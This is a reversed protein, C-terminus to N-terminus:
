SQTIKKTFNFKSHCEIKLSMENKTANCKSNCEMKPSMGIHTVKKMSMGNLQCEMELSMGNQNVNWKSHCEM